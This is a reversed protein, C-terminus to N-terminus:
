AGVVVQSKILSRKPVSAAWVAGTVGAQAMRRDEPISQTYLDM